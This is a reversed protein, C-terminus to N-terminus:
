RRKRVKVPIPKPKVSDGIVRVGAAGIGIASGAVVLQVIWSSV